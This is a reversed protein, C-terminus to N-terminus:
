GSKILRENNEWENSKETTLNQTELLMYFHGLEFHICKSGKHVSSLFDKQKM